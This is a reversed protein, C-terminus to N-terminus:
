QVMQSSVIRDLYKWAAEHTEFEKREGNRMEVIWADGEQRFGPMLPMTQRHGCRSCRLTKGHLDSVSMAPPVFMRCCGKRAIPERTM